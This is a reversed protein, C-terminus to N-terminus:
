AEKEKDSRFGYMTTRMIVVVGCIVIGYVCYVDILCQKYSPLSDRISELDHVGHLMASLIVEAAREVGGTSQLLQGITQSANRYSSDSTVQDLATPFENELQNLDVVLGASVQKVRMAVVKHEASLPITLIPLSSVFAEQVTALGGATVLLKVSEHDLIASQAVFEVLKLETAQFEM